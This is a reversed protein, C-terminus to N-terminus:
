IYRAGLQFYGLKQTKIKLNSTVKFYNPLMNDGLGSHSQNWVKLDRYSKVKIRLAIARRIATSM